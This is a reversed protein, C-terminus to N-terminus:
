QEIAGAPRILGASPQPIANIAPDKADTSDLWITRNPRLGPLQRSSTVIVTGQGTSPLLPQIQRTSAANNLLLVGNHSALTIRWLASRDAARRPLDTGDVGSQALLLELAVASHMPLQGPTDGHLDVHFPTGARSRRLIEMARLGLTNRESGSGGILLIMVHDRPAIGAPVLSTDIRVEAQGESIEAGSM